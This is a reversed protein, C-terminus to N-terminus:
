YVKFAVLKYPGSFPGVRVHIVDDKGCWVEWIVGEIRLDGRSFKALPELQWSLVTMSDLDATVIYDDTYSM